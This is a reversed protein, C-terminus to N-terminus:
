TKPGRIAAPLTLLLIKLDLLPSWNEIYYNDWEIRDELSTEGRLGHVQAWGTLGSKVRHRDGYRYIHQEFAPVYNAREPRPGIMSMEGRLVNLLQPLEDLSLSRLFGGVRTRRDQATREGTPQGLTAAAWDADAEGAVEPTSTMTRFKYIEFERGDLGLRPQRYFVPGTSTLRVALALTLLLPALVVMSLAAAVRDLGYKVAFQWGRADVQDVRLMAVGGLHEITTRSTVEEFLRPVVLLAVGKARCRRLLDLVEEHRSYSFAVIVYRIDRGAVAAEFDDISGLVPLSKLVGPPIERPSPDLFGVPALGLEPRELLRRAVLQGVHGAGVILANTTQGNAANRRRSLALGARGAGLYVTSFAWLRITEGAAGPNNEVIMRVALLFTAALSTVVIIQGIDDLPSAALRFQYMRHGFALAVVTLAFALMWLGGSSRGVVEAGYAAAALALGLMVVDAVLQAAVLERRQGRLDRGSSASPAAARPAAREGEVEFAGDPDTTSEFM